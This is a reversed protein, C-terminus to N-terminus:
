CPCRPVQLAVTLKLSLLAGSVHCSASGFEFESRCRWRWTLDYSHGSSQKESASRRTACRNCKTRRRLKLRERSKKHRYTVPAPNPQLLVSRVPMRSTRCWGCLYIRFFWLYTSFMHRYASRFKWPSQKLNSSVPPSTFRRKVEGPVITFNQVFVLYIRITTPLSKKTTSSRPFLVISHTFWRQYYKESNPKCHKLM